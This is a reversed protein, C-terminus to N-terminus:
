RLVTVSGAFQREIGDIMRIKVLYVFVGANVFTGNQRGDWGVGRYVQAGWRDFINLDISEIFEEGGLVSFRDNLGDQNPSFANPIFIDYYSLQLLVLSDCGLSSTLTVLHDGARNFRHKDIEYTEGEFIKASVTDALTGLVKLNLTVINNCNEATKFTDVYIGTESLIQNGFAYVSEECITKNVTETFFPLTHDYSVSVRCASGDDIRVQYKGEGYIRSLQPATEGVLAIGGKFWQYSFDPNDPVMLSFSEACPHSVEVIRLEFSRFDSLLLNDFFYYLSVSSQVAPCDPGIAIAKIDERPVVEISAKLWKNGAGGDVLTSGLRVWGPGSTPCGFEEDGVGFPLNSCDTTGFFTINVPPSRLSSVFGVDFEFRYASDAELPSLLCAGAYEKWFPDPDNERIVRGDRFGMIGEGDPFPTPPPFEPWGFWGCYHIYDTTPESAQIWVAACNLQSRDFPCCNMEEFSPNPILSIPEIVVCSCDPDNLDILGDQDDDMANDCIEELTVAASPILFPLFSVFFLAPILFSVWLGVWSTYTLFPWKKM